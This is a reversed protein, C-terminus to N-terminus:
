DFFNAFMYQAMEGVVIVEKDHSPWNFTPFLDKFKYLEEGWLLLHSVESFDHWSVIDQRFAGLAKMTGDKYFVSLM